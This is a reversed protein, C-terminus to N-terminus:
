LCVDTEAIDYALDHMCQSRGIDLDLCEAVVASALIM